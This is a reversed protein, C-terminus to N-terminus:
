RTKKKKPYNHILLRKILSVAEKSEKLEQGLRVKNRSLLLKIEDLSNM